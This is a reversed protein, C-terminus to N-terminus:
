PDAAEAEELPEFKLCNCRSSLCFEAAHNHLGREHSCKCPETLDRIQLQQLTPPKNM